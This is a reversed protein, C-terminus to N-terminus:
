ALVATLTALTERDLADVQGHIARDMNREARDAGRVTQEHHVYTNVAQVVGYATGAWPAVRRDHRYLRNLSNRKNEAITKSRGDQEPIPALSDLFRRWDSDTVTVACLESVQQAFDDGIQHVIALADRADQLKM